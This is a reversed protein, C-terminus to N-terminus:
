IKFLLLDDKKYEKEFKGVEDFLEMYTVKKGKLDLQEPVGDNMDVMVNELFWYRLEPPYNKDAIRSMTKFKLNAEYPNIKALNTNVFNNIENFDKDYQKKELNVKGCLEVYDSSDNTIMFLHEAPNEDNVQFTLKCDRDFRSMIAKLNHMINEVYKYSKLGMAAFIVPLYMYKQTSKEAIKMQKTFQKPYSDLLEVVKNSVSGKMSINNNTIPAIKM